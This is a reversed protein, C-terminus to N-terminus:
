EKEREHKEKIADIVFQKDVLYADTYGEKKLEEIIGGAIFDDFAAAMRVAAKRILGFHDRDLETIEIKDYHPLMDIYRIVEKSMNDGM